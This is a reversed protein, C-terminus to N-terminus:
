REFKQVALREFKRVTLVTLLVGLRVFKRSTSVEDAVARTFTALVSSVMVEPTKLYLAKGTKRNEKSELHSPAKSIM